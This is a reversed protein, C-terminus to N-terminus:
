RWDCNTARHRETVPGPQAVDDRARRECRAGRIIRGEVVVASGFYGTRCM